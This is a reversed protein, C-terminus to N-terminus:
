LSKVRLTSSIKTYKVVAEYVDPFDDKLQKTNVSVRQTEGVRTCETLDTKVHKIGEDDMHNSILTKVSDLKAKAINVQEIAELLDPEYKLYWDPTQEVSISKEKNNM